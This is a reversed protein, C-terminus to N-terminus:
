KLSVHTILPTNTFYKEVILLIKDKINIKYYTQLNEQFVQYLIQNLSKYILILLVSTKQFILRFCKM